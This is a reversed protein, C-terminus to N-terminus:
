AVSGRAVAATTAFHGPCKPSVFDKACSGLLWGNVL